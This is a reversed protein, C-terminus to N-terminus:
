RTEGFSQSAPATAGAEDCGIATSMGEWEGAELRESIPWGHLSQIQLTRVVLLDLIGPRLDPVIHRTM